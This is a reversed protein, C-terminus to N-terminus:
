LELLEASAIVVSFRFLASCFAIQLLMRWLEGFISKMSCANRNLCGSNIRVDYYWYRLISLHKLFLFFSLHTYYSYHMESVTRKTLLINVLMALASCEISQWCRSHM